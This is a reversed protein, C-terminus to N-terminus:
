KNKKNMSRREKWFKRKTKKGWCKDCLLHHNKVQAGCDCRKRLPKDGRKKM